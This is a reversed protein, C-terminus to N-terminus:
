FHAFFAAFGGFLSLIGIEVATNALQSAGGFPLFLQILAPVLGDRYPRYSVEYLTRAPSTGARTPTYPVPQAQGRGPRDMLAPEAEM